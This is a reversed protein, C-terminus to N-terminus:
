QPAEEWNGWAISEEAERKALSWVTVRGDGFLTAYTGEEPDLCIRLVVGRHDGKISKWVWAKGAFVDPRVAAHREQKEDARTKM